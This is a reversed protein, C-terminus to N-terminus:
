EEIVSLYLANCIKMEEIYIKTEESPHVCDINLYTAALYICAAAVENAKDVSFTFPYKVYIYQYLLQKVMTYLTPNKQELDSALLVTEQYLPHDDIPVVNEPHICISHEFKEVEVEQHYQKEKLLLLIATKVVPHVAQNVLLQIMGNPPQGKLKSLRQIIHWQKKDDKDHIAKKFEKVDFAFKKSLLEHNMDKSVQYLQKLQMRTAEPLQKKNLEMEIRELAAEFQETKFLITLYLQVYDYYRNCALHLREECLIQAEEMYGLEILCILKGFVIKDTEAQFSILENFVELAEKYNKQEMAQIGSKELSSKWKPFIIVNEENSDM